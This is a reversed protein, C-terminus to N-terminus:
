ALVGEADAVAQADSTTMGEAELAAVRERYTPWDHPGDHGAAGAVCPRKGVTYPCRNFAAGYEPCWEGKGCDCKTQIM